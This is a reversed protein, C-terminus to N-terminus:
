GRDDRAASAQGRARLLLDRLRGAGLVRDIEQFAFYPLLVVFMVWAFTLVGRPGGAMEPLVVGPAQGHWAGVLVEELGYAAVLVITFLLAHYLVVYITPGRSIHRGVSLSGLRAAEAILMFKALILANILGLAYFHYGPYHPTDRDIRAYINISFLILTGFVVILYTAFTLYRKAETAARQRLSGPPEHADTRAGERAGEQPHPAPVAAERSSAPTM